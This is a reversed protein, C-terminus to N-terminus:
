QIRGMITNSLTYPGQRRHTDGMMAATYQSMVTFDPTARERRDLVSVDATETDSQGTVSLFSGGSGSSARGAM